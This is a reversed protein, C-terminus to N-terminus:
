KSQLERNYKEDACKKIHNLKRLSFYFTGLGKLLVNKYTDPVFDRGNELEKKLFKFQSFCVDKAENYTLNYKKAIDKIIDRVWVQVIM